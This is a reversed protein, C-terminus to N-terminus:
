APQRPFSPSTPTNGRLPATCRSWILSAPSISWITAQCQAASSNLQEIREVMPAISRLRDNFRTSINSIHLGLQDASFPPPYQKGTRTKRCGWCTEQYYEVPSLTASFLICAHAQAFREALFDAPILNRISLRASARLRKGTQGTRKVELTCLSHDGFREALKMFSLTDFL